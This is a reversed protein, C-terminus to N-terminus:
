EMVVWRQLQAAGAFCADSEFAKNPPVASMTHDEAPM